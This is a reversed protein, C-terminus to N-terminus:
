TRTLLHIDLRTGQDDRPVLKTNNELFFFIIIVVNNLSTQTM